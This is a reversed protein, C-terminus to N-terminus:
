GLVMRTKRKKFIMGAERQTLVLRATVPTTGLSFLGGSFTAGQGTLPNTHTVSLTGRSFTASIGTLGVTGAITPTLTGGNFTASRGTLPNTHTVTFLGGSFTSSQGTLTKALSPSLTGRNFTNSIGTLPNTHTVGLTGSSFTNGIGTLPNTHTVGLTGRSATASNGTLNVSVGASPVDYYLRTKVPRLLAYPEKRFLALEASTLNAAWGAVYETHGDQQVAGDTRRGVRLGTTNGVFSSPTNASNISTVSTSDIWFTPNSTSTGNHAVEITRVTTSSPSINSNATYLANALAGSGARGLVPYPSADNTTRFDFPNDTAGNSAHKGAFHRFAGGTAIIGRWALTLEATINHGSCDNFSFFDSTSSALKAMFGRSQATGPRPLVSASGNSTGVLHNVLDYAIGNIFVIFFRLNRNAVLPHALNIDVPFAPTSNWKGPLIIYAM